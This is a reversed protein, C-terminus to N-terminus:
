KISDGVIEQFLQIVQRTMQGVEGGNLITEDIQTIPVIGTTTQTLFVEEKDQLEELTLTQFTVNFPSIKLVIDRTIGPLIGSERTCLNDGDFWFINAYAAEYVEGNDDVLIADYAGAETAKKHSLYSDLYALTKVEPFSRKCITSLCEVGDYVSENIELKESTIIIKKDIAILKIKRPDSVEEKAIRDLMQVIENKDYDVAIDLRSIGSFLREVHEEAKFVKKNYTRLTEFVGLGYMFAPSLISVGAEGESVFKNNILIKM